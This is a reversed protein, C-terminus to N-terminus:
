LTNCAPAAHPWLKYWHYIFWATVVSWLPTTWVLTTNTSHDVLTQTLLPGCLHQLTTHPTTWVLTTHPSTQMLTMHPSHFAGCWHPTHPTIQLHKTQPMMRDLIFQIIQPINVVQVYWIYLKWVSFESETLSFKAYTVKLCWLVVHPDISCVNYM